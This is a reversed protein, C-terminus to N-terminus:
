KKFNAGFKSWFTLGSMPGVVAGLFREGPNNIYSGINNYGLVIDEYSGTPTVM